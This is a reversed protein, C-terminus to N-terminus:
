DAEADDGHSSLSAALSRLKARCKRVMQAATEPDSQFILQARQLRELERRFGENAWMTQKDNLPM